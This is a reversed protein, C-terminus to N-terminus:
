QVSRLRSYKGAARAAASRPRRTFRRSRAVATKRSRYGFRALSVGGASKTRLRWRRSKMHATPGACKAHGECPRGPSGTRRCASTRPVHDHGSSGRTQSGPTARHKVSEQEKAGPLVEYTDPRWTSRSCQTHATFLRCKGTPALGVRGRSWGSAVPATMSAVFHSFGEPLTGRFVTAARTHLGCRSHVGLLGRFPRHAPRGPSGVPSPQCPQHSQALCYWWDSRRPLPPLMYVLFACAVRSAGNMGFALPLSLGSPMEVRRSRTQM